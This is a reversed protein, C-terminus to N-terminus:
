PVRDYLVRLEHKATALRKKQQAGLHQGARNMYFTLMSMASAYPTSKRAKSQEASRALSTAIRKPDKWAFVGQELQLARSTDTVHQSWRTPAAPKKMATRRAQSQKTISARALSKKGGKGSTSRLVM